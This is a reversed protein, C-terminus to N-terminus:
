KCVEDTDFEAEYDVGEIAFGRTKAYEEMFREYRGRDFADGVSLASFRRVLESQIEDSLERDDMRLLGEDDLTPQKGRGLHDDVLRLMSAMPDEYRDGMVDMCEAMYLPVGPIGGSAETVVAPGEVAIASGGVRDKLQADLAKTHFELDAKALGILGDRYVNANLPNGRYSITLLRFGEALADAELLADIWQEVVRGGMVYQTAVAEEPSGPAIEIEVIRPAEDGDPGAFTKVIAPKGIPKLASSVAEGTRPDLGKPAALAWAIGALKQGGFESALLEVVRARAAPDFADAQESLATSGLAGLGRDLALNRHFGPSGIKRIKNGSHPDPARDYSLSLTHAGLRTAAAVRFASGFGGSGGMVLWVGGSGAPANPGGSAREILQQASHQTGVPHFNGPFIVNGARPIFRFQFSPLALLM